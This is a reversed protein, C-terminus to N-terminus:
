KRSARISRLVEEVPEEVVEGSEIQADRRLAEEIWEEEFSEKRAPELSILLQHALRARDREGLQLAEAEIDDIKRIPEAM